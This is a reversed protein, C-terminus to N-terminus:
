EDDEAAALPKPKIKLKKTIKKTTKNDDTTMEDNFVSEEDEAVSPKPKIKLTKTLKKTTTKPLKQTSMDNQLTSEQLSPVEQITSLSENALMNLQLSPSDPKLTPQSVINSQSVASQIITSQPVDSVVSAVAVSDLDDVVPKTSDEKEPFRVYVQKTPAELEAIVHIHKDNLEYRQGIVKVYIVDNEKVNNFYEMEYHNDRALFIILPYNEDGFVKAKIGAAKTINVAQAKIRMGIVPLCVDCNYSINYRVNCGDNICGSSYDVINISNPKVYGEPICYGEKKKLKKELTLKINKGISKINIDINSTLLSKIYIDNENHQKYKNM